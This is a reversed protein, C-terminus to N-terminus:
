PKRNAADRVPTSLERLLEGLADDDNEKVKRRLQAEATSYQKWLLAAEPNKDLEHALTLVMEVLAEDEPGLWGQRGLYDITRRAAGLNGSEEPITVVKAPNKRTQPPKKAAM